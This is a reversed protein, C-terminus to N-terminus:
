KLLDKNEYINGIVEVAETILLGRAHNLYKVNEEDESNYKIPMKLVWGALKKDWVVPYKDDKDFMWGNPLWGLSNDATMNGDLSVIDGEYIEVGNKDKLGTYQMLVLDELRFDNRLNGKKLLATPRGTWNIELVENISKDKKLWARFKIERKM